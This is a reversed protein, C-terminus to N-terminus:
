GVLAGIQNGVGTTSNANLLQDKPMIERVLAMASPSYIQDGIAVLMAMAYLHWPRLLDFMFLIPVAILVLARFADTCVALYKRDFRDVLVGIMPSLLIGPITSCLLVIAVSANSGTLQLALWSNAVYQMGTGLSSITTAIFYMLYSRNIFVSWRDLMPSGQAGM